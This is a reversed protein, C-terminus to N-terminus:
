RRYPRGIQLSQHLPDAQRRYYQVALYWSEYHISQLYREDGLRKAQYSLAYGGDPIQIRRDLVRRTYAPTKHPGELGDVKVRGTANTVIAVAITRQIVLRLTRHCGNM